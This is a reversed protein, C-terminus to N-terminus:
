GVLQLASGPALAVVNNISLNVATVSGSNVILASSGSILNSIYVDQFTNHSGQSFVPGLQTISDLIISGGGSKKLSSILLNSSNLAWMDVGNSAINNLSVVNFINLVGYQIRNIYISSEVGTNSDFLSNKLDMWGTINAISVASGNSYLYAQNANKANNSKRKCIGIRSVDAM